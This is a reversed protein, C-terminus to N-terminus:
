GLVGIGMVGLNPGFEEELLYGARRGAALTEMTLEDRCLNIIVNRWTACLYGSDIYIERHM